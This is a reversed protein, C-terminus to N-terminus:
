VEKQDLGVGAIGRGCHPCRGDSVSDSRMRFGRREIVEAGCDPCTTSESAHGPVNGGYVYCLGEERGIRLAREVSALPTPPVDLLRYTPHFRSVHWPIDPSISALFSALSRLEDDGDNRGPILLTTVEVWVGMAWLRRISDLVPKLRGGVMTRYFEDSFSKLDVNAAHLHGDIDALTEATMYGNTVFVNKLGAATALRASDRAYEYFITPETYTYSISACGAARAASVVQGPSLPRGTIKGQDRPMQSIDANQCFRCTFNCGVTALSLSLSGPLFHFLPKKEIPDVATSVPCGYVLTYLVGDRNERVGCLGPAGPEIRCHHACLFCHVRPGGRWEEWLAAQVAEPPRGGEM